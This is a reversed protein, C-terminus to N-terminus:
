IKAYWYVNQATGSAGATTKIGVTITTSSQNEVTVINNAAANTLTLVIRSPQAALGHNITGGDAVTSAVGGNENIYGVPANNVITGSSGLSVPGTTNSSLSGGDIRCNTCTNAISIGYGGGSAQGNGQAGGASSGCTM